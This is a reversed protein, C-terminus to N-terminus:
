RWLQALSVRSWGRGIVLM